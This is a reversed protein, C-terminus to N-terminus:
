AIFFSIAFLPRRRRPPTSQFIRYIQKDKLVTDGGERLRPNFFAMVEGTEEGTVTAEKASAHISFLHSQVFHFFIFPRRRRPPTSQFSKYRILTSLASNDGGERLRPNFFANSLIRATNCRRRRRPPTSQFIFYISPSPNTTTAEKASAHISFRNNRRVDEKPKLRRRRPPTSQFCRVESPLASRSLRRRRRPPTSQFCPKM